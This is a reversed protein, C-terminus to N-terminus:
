SIQPSFFVSEENTASLSNSLFSASRRLKEPFVSLNASCTNLPPDGSLKTNPTSAGQPIPLDVKILKQLSYQFSFCLSWVITYLNLGNRYELAVLRRSIKISPRM